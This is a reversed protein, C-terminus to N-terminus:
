ELYTERNHILPHISVLFHSKVEESDNVQFFRRFRQWLIAARSPQETISGTEPDSVDAEMESVKSETSPSEDM